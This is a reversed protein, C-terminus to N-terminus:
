EIKVGEANVRAKIVRGGVKKIAKEVAKRKSEPALAIMCDGGGGSMKAGFAGAGRAGYIMQSLKVDSVGLAELYGHNFNMLQGLGEWDKEELYRKAFGVIKEIESYISEVTKPHKLSMKKVQDIMLVTDVKTGTYGIVVDLGNANIPKIIKGGTWFYITGGYVAAAADFGSGKGQVDLITKYSLDFIQKNSLKKALMEALAKIVCVTSASSSGFGYQSSFQSKTTVKIGGKFPYKKIFNLVALEVFKTEKPVDGQGLQELNKRYNKVKVAPADLIFQEGNLREITASMRQDVATVLCPRGYVVAHEGYLMLKGPASVTVKSKM